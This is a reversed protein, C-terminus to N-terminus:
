GLLFTREEGDRMWYLDDSDIDLCRTQENSFSDGPNAQSFSRSDELRFCGIREYYDDHQQLILIMPKREFRATGEDTRVIVACPLQKQHDLSVQEVGIDWYPHIFFETNQNYPVRVYLGSKSWGGCIPQDLYEFDLMVVTTSVKLFRLNGPPNATHANSVRDQIGSLESYEDRHWVKLSCSITAVDQLADGDFDEHLYEVAGNWGLPSWTPFEKRRPCPSTHIWHLAMSQSSPQSRKHRYHTFPVGYIHDVEKLTNLAGVIANLADSDYTLDRRLYEKIM